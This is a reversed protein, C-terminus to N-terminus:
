AASLRRLTRTLVVLGKEIDSWDTWEMPAHSIGQISPVFIMGTKVRGAINQADHGAGSNMRVTQIGEEDASRQIAEIVEAALPQPSHIPPTSMEVSVGYRDEVAKLESSMDGVLLEMNRRDVDRIDIGMEVRGPVINTGNPYVSLKGVTGVTASGLTEVMENARRKVFTIVDAAAVLADRRLNMPTTGAHNGQGRITAYVWAIGAINEVVGVPVHANWLLPGQEVHLEVFCEVDDFDMAFDGAYGMEELAQELTRGEPDRRALAEATSMKGVLATSGLLTMGFASGEEGTFVAVEIPRPNQYGEDSLCRVAEIASFVGLAGDFQGGNVVSDLHSGCMVAKRGPETGHRRGFINGLRDVRVELGAAKMKEVAYARIKKNAASGTPRTVGNDPDLKEYADVRREPERGFRGSEVIDEKLREIM